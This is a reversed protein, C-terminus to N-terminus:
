GTGDKEIPRVTGVTLSMSVDRETANVLGFETCHALDAPGSPQGGAAKFSVAASIHMGKDIFNLLDSWDPWRGSQQFIAM